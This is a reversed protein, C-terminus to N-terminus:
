HLQTHRLEWGIASTPPFPPPPKLLQIDVHGIRKMRFSSFGRDSTDPLLKGKDMYLVCARKVTHLTCTYPPDLPFPIPWIYMVLRPWQGSYLPWHSPYSKPYVTLSSFLTQKSTNVHCWRFCTCFYRYAPWTRCIQNHFTKVLFWTSCMTISISSLYGTVLPYLSRQHSGM